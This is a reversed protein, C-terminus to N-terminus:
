IFEIPYTSSADNISNSYSSNIILLSGILEIFKDNYISLNCESTYYLICIM